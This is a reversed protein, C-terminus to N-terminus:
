YARGFLTSVTSRTSEGCEIPVGSVVHALGGLTRRGENPAPFGGRLRAPVDGDPQV